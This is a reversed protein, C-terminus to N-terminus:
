LSVFSLLVEHLSSVSGNFRFHFFGVGMKVGGSSGSRELPSSFSASRVLLGNEATSDVWGKRISINDSGKEHKSSITCFSFLLLGLLETSSLGLKVSLSLMSDFGVSPSVSYLLCFSGVGGTGETSPAYEITLDVIGNDDRYTNM